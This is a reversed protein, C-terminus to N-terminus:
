RDGFRERWIEVSRRIDEVTKRPSM